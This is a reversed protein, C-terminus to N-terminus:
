RYDEYWSSPTPVEEILDGEERAMRMRLLVEEFSVRSELDPGGLDEL